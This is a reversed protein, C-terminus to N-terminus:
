KLLLFHQLEDWLIIKSFIPNTCYWRLQDCFLPPPQTIPLSSWSRESSHQRRCCEAWNLSDEARLWRAPCFSPSASVVTNQTRTSCTQYMPCCPLYTAELGSMVVSYCCMSFTPKRFWKLDNNRSVTRLKIRFYNAINEGYITTSCTSLSAM